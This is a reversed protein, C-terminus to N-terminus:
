LVRLTRPPSPPPPFAAHVCAFRHCPHAKGCVACLQVDTRRKWGRKRLCTLASAPTLAPPRRANRSCRPLPGAQNHAAGTGQRAGSSGGAGIAGQLSASPRALAPAGGRGGLAGGEPWRAHATNVAVMRPGGPAIPPWRRRRPCRLVRRTVIGARPTRCPHGGKQACVSRSAHDGEPPHCLRM